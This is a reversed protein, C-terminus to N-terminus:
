RKSRVGILADKVARTIVKSASDVVIMGPISVTSALEMEQQTSVLIMLSPHKTKSATYLALAAQGLPENPKQVRIPVTGNAADCKIFADIGSNRQVPIIDLGSLHALAYKDTNEYAGRGEEMLCSRSSSPSRLREQTIRIADPSNDIGICRRNLLRAAILTTGSGCFPDLVLDNEDTVLRIIKELLLIPKQTPYGVREKAKPNLYPIDWVDGLPVGKKNGNFVAEGNEDIAYISKNYEDRARKQLIQDVNTAPSYPVFMTNFKYEQSKTYFLINQHARLLRREGSSWRRYQWIIESSFMEEGFVNDLLFRAIHSANRDCHLFISGTSNLVRKMECLRPHLFQAYENTSRWVDSFQFRQTRDRTTLKQTNGTFFPPDLYVLDVSNEPVKTLIELCDGLYVDAEM